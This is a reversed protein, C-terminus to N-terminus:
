EEVRGRLAARGRQLVCSDREKPFAAPKHRWKPGLMVFLSGGTARAANERTTTADFTRGSNPDGPGFLGEFSEHRFRIGRNRSGRDLVIVRQRKEPGTPRGARSLAIPQVRQQQNRGAEGCQDGACAHLVLKAACGALGRKQPRCKQRQERCAPNKSDKFQKKLSQRKRGRHHSKKESVFHPVVKIAVAVSDIRRQWEENRHGCQNPRHLPTM